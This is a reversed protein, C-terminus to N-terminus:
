LSAEHRPRLELSRGKQGALIKSRNQFVLTAPAAEAPPRGAALRRAAPEGPAPLLAEPALGVKEPSMRGRRLLSASQPKHLPDKSLRAGTIRRVYTGTYIHTYTHNHTLFVYLHIKGM